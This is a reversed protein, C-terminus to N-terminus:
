SIVPVEATVLVFQEGGRHHAGIHSRVFTNQKDFETVKLGPGAGGVKWVETRRNYEGFARYRMGISDITSQKVPDRRQNLPLFMAYQSFNYGDAGYLEPHNFSKFRKFMYTRESKTLYKFNVSAGLSENKNFLVDNATKQAFSINTDKFYEVLSNELAQHRDIGMMSLVHNGAHNAEMKKDIDDFAEVPFTNPAILKLQSRKRMYPVLGETTKLRNGESDVANPNTNRQGFLLAGDIQVAMRYDLEAQGKYYYPAGKVGKLQFWTKRTMESGTVGITEKIIQAENEYYIVGSLAADPQGSGESWANSFIILNAGASLQPIPAGGISRLTLTPATPVTKDIAHIYAVAENNFLIQQNKRPYFRNAADLSSPHLTVVVDGNTAGANTNGNVKFKVHYRNEEFNGYEDQMAIEEYGLSRLMLYYDPYGQDGFRRFLNSLIDPEYVDLSSIINEAYIGAVAQPSLPEM